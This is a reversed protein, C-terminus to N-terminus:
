QTFKGRECWHRLTVGPQSGLLDRATERNNKNYDKDEAADFTLSISEHM